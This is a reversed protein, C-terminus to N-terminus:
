AKKFLLIQDSCLPSFFDVWPFLNNRISKGIKGMRIFIKAIVTSPLNSDMEKNFRKLFASKFDRWLADDARVLLLGHRRFLEIWFSRKHVSIHTADARAHRGWPSPTTILIHGGKKVIRKAENLLHDFRSLHELVELIVVLDFQSDTFPMSDKEIDVVKLKNKINGQSMSVAYSSIDVGYADIGYENLLSVLYGKACGVDLVAAPKIVNIIADSIVKFFVAMNEWNYVRKSKLGKGEEFYEKGFLEEKFM